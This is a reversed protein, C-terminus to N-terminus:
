VLPKASSRKILSAQLLIKRSLKEHDKMRVILYHVAEEGMEMRPQKITTLPPNSYTSLYIDDFGVVSLKDPVGVGIESAYRMVGFAMLDNCTFIATPSDKM